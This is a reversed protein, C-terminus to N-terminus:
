GKKDWGVVLGNEITVKLGFRDKATQQYKWIEKTKTKLVKQDVAVPQGISDILMQEAQGQWIQKSMIREVVEPDGYKALLEKRRAQDAYYRYIVYGVFAAVLIWAITM